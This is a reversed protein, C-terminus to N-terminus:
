LLLKFSSNKNTKRKTQIHTRTSHPSATGAHNRDNASAQNAARITSLSAGAMNSRRRIRSSVAGLYICSFAQPFRKALWLVGRIICKSPWKPYQFTISKHSFYSRTWILCANFAASLFIDISQIKITWISVRARLFLKVTQNRLNSIVNMISIVDCKKNIRLISVSM